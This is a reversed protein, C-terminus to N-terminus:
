PKGGPEASAPAPGPTAASALKERREEDAVRIRRRVFWATLGLGVLLSFFVRPIFRMVKHTLNPMAESPLNMEYGLEGFPVASLHLVNTGGVEHEGYVHPVYSSPSGVIRAHAEAVMDDRDGFTIADTPCVAACAPELNNSVRDYCMTCKSVKPSIADYQYKPVQFPCALMCYRCGICRDDVLVVPGLETKQLAATPCVSACAPELCHMCLKRGFVWDASEVKEAYTIITFNDADLDRPNQYGPGQFFDVEDASEAGPLGNWEKCAVMCARCGICRTNDQIMAKQAM